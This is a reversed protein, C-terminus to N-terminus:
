LSLNERPNSLIESRRMTVSSREEEIKSSKSLTKSNSNERRIVDFLIVEKETMARNANDYNDNVDRTM